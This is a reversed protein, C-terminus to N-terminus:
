ANDYGLSQSLNGLIDVMTERQSPALAKWNQSSLEFRKKSRAIPDETGFNHDFDWPRIMADDWPENLFACLAKTQQEPDKVLREYNISFVSERSAIECLKEVIKKTYLCANVLDDKDLDDLKWGRSYISYAIDFPNRFVVVFQTDDPAISAIEEFYPVYQPTKDAWRTKNNAIRFSEHLRFAMHAVENKINEKEVLGSLGSLSNDDRLMQIFHILYNTEPPCAINRHSNLIRRVLSTGSRHCGMVFIPNSCYDEEDLTVVYQQRVLLPRGLFARLRRYFNKFGSFNM